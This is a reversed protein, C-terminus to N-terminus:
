TFRPIEQNFIEISTCATKNEKSIKIHFKLGQKRYNVGTTCKKDRGMGGETITRGYTNPNELELSETGKLWNM